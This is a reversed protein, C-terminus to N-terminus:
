RIVRTIDQETGKVLVYSKPAVIELYKTTNDAPDVFERVMTYCELGLM